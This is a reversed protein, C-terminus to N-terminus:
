VFLLLHNSNKQDKSPRCAKSRTVAARGVQELGDGKHCAPLESSASHASAEEMGFGGSPGPRPEGSERTELVQSKVDAMKSRVEAMQAKLRILVGSDPASRRVVQPRREREKRSHAHAASFWFLFLFSDLLINLIYFIGSDCPM